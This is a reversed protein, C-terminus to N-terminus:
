CEHKYRPRDDLSPRRSRGVVADLEDQVKKQIHPNLILYLICYDLSNAVSEAGASFLDLLITVLGDESLVHIQNFQMWREVRELTLTDCYSYNQQLQM